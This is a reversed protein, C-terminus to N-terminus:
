LHDGDEVVTRLVAAEDRATHTLAVDVALEEGRVGRKPLQPPEARLADDERAAGVADVILVGAVDILGDKLALQGAEADAVAHLEEGVLKATVDLGVGAAALIAGGLDM